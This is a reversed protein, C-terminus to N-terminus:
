RTGAVQRFVSGVCVLAGLALLRGMFAEGSVDYHTFIMLGVAAATVILAAGLRGRESGTWALRKSWEAGVYGCIWGGAAAVLVDLPWHAGVAIRSAAVAVATALALVKVRRDSALVQIVAAFVFATTAHGSPFSMTKLTPGVISIVDPPFVGAPRPLDFLPKLGRVFVVGLPAALVAAWIMRPYRPLSGAIMATGALVNGLLTIALLMDAPLRQAMGNVALFLVQNSDTAWIALASVLCALPLRWPLVLVPKDATM